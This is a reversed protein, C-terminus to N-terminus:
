KKMLEKCNIKLRKNIGCSACSNLCNETLILREARKLEKLYFDKTVGTDIFDWPLTSNLDREELYKNVDINSELIAKDWAEKNFSFDWSDMKAGNKFALEILKSLEKDGRSLIGELYSTESHHIKLSTNKKNYFLERLFKHKELMEEKNMQNAWQFPTHAKPIFNSVAVKIMIKSNIKRVESLVKSVLDYIGKVDEITEFPLGIMFYFKLNRWGKLTAEKATEIIEEENVGKNIIDRMRQSGAEPAFTFSTKRGGSIKRAIEVSHKNMRLSPLQVSLKEEAYKEQLNEILPEIQSYDSSSLSSLSIENYGTTNLAYDIVAINEELSRERVPRYIMGAQCFRCGRTCGRQIEIVARDHVIDTYPVLQEGLYNHDSLEKVINRKITQNEHLIPIYVGDLNKILELKERKTKNTNAVFIKAIEEMVNEGDGIVFYDFFDEIPKPNFVCTGGAMILPYEEGRDCARFPIKALDLINLVNTYALEYSLSFGLVKFNKLEKKSELSFISIDNDRLIKEMDEMPSFARELKFGEVKNLLFYLIRFGVASMGIEYTDPYILCMDEVFNDKHVSNFENGLYQSPKDVTLLIKNLNIM